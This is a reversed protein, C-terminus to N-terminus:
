ACSRVRYGGGRHLESDTFTVNGNRVELRSTAATGVSVTYSTQLGFIAVNSSGPVTQPVWNSGTQFSGGASNNWRIPTASPTPTWPTPTPTPTPNGERTVDLGFNGFVQPSQQSTQATANWQLEIRYSGPVLDGGSGFPLFQNGSITFEALTTGSALSVLRITATNIGGSGFRTDFGGSMGWTHTSGTVTFTCQLSGNGLASSGDPGVAPKAWYTVRCACAM